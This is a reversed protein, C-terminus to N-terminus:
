QRAPTIECFEIREEDPGSIIFYRCEDPAWLPITEIGESLINFNMHQAEVYCQEINTCKLAIHDIRGDPRAFQAGIGSKKGTKEYLEIMCDSKRVMAVDYENIAKKNVVVSFGLKRYFAISEGLARCPVGIHALGGIDAQKRNEM